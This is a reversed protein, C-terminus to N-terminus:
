YGGQNYQGGYYYRGNHSYRDNYYRGDSRYRGVERQGGYYYRGQHSYYSGRYDGPLSAYIGAGQVVVHRSHYRPGEEVICGALLTMAALSLVPISIRKQLKTTINM